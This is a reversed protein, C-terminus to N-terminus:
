IGLQARIDSLSVDTEQMIPFMGHLRRVETTWEPWLKEWGMLKRRGLMDRYESHYMIIKEPNYNVWHAKQQVYLYNSSVFQMVPHNLFAATLEPTALHFAPWHQLNNNKCWDEALFYDQDYNVCIDTGKSVLFMDGSCVIGTANLREIEELLYIQFYRFPMHTKYGQDAYRYMDTTLFKRMDLTRTITEIGYRQAFNRAHSLDHENLNDTWESILMRFPINAALFGKCAVEADIGGSCAIIIDKSTQSRITEAARKVEEQWSELTRTTPNFKVTLQNNALTHTLNLM